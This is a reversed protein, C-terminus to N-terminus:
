RRSPIKVKNTNLWNIAKEMLINKYELYNEKTVPIFEDIMAPNGELIQGNPRITHGISWMFKVVPKGSIPFVLDEEWEWTNSYGGDPMGLTYGLDNDNIMASFQSLHSGDVWRCM